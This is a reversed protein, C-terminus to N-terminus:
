NKIIRQKNRINIVFIFNIFMLMMAVFKLEEILDYHSTMIGSLEYFEKIGFVSFFFVRSLSEFVFCVKTLISDKYGLTEIFRNKFLLLALRRIDTIIVLVGVVLIIISWKNLNIDM